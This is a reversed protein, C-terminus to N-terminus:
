RGELRRARPRVTTKAATAPARGRSAAPKETAMVMILNSWEIADVWAPLLLSYDLGAEEARDFEAREHAEVGRLLRGYYGKREGIAQAIETSLPLERIIQSMPADLMADLVSFLGVTFGAEPSLQPDHRALTECTRARVLATRVLEGPKDAVGGLILLSLLNRLRNMGLMVLAHRISEVRAPLAYLSSNLAKMLRYSLAVDQSILTEIRDLRSETSHIETLVQILTLRNAPLRRQVLTEPRCMFYGQFRDFGLKKCAEFITLDEVKEAVLNVSYRRFPEVRRAIEDPNLGRVDIKVYEALQLLPVIEPSFVCDDLALLYGQDVLRHLRLLTDATPHVDELVEVVLKPAPVPIPMDDVLYGEPFNVWAPLEGVVREIGFELLLNSLVNSTARSGDDFVAARVDSSRYLLEYGVTRLKLDM